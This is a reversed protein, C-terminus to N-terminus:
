AGVRDGPWWARGGLLRLISPVLIGRVVTADLIVAIAVALAFEKVIVLDSFVNAGVAIAFIVAASTILRGTRAIGATIAAADSLGSRRAELIRSLVFIGYDTSLGFVVAFALLPVSVDIGDQAGTGLLNAIAESQFAAVMLGYAALVTLANLLISILPLVVSRVMALVLVLNTLVVIAVVLLAHDAISTRQDTLEAARGGVLAGDPFPADRADKVLQQGEDSLPDVPAALAVYSSGDALERPAEVQIGAEQWTETLEDSAAM